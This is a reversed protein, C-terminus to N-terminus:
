GVIKKGKTLYTAGRMVSDKKNNNQWTLIKHGYVVRLKNLISKQNDLRYPLDGYMQHFNANPVRNDLTDWSPKRLANNQLTRCLIMSLTGERIPSSARRGAEDTAAYTNVM